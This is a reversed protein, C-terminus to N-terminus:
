NFRTPAMARARSNRALVQSSLYRPREFEMALGNAELLTSLDRGQDELAILAKSLANKRPLDNNLKAAKYEPWLEKRAKDISSIAETNQRIGEQIATWLRKSDDHIIENVMRNNQRNTEGWRAKVSDPLFRLIHDVAGEPLDRFNTKEFDAQYDILYDLDENQLDDDGGSWKALDRGPTSPEEDDSVEGARVRHRWVGRRNRAHQGCARYGPVCSKRCRTGARTLASCTRGTKAVM